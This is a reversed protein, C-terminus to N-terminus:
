KGKLCDIFLLSVGELALAKMEEQTTRYELSEKDLFHDSADPQAHLFEESFGNSLNKTENM